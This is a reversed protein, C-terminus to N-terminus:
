LDRIRCTEPIYKKEERHRLSLMSDTEGEVRGKMM